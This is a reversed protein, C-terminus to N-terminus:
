RVLETPLVLYPSQEKDPFLAYVPPFANETYLGHATLLQVFLRQSVKLTGDLFDCQRIEWSKSNKRTAFVLVRGSEDDDDKRTKEATMFVLTNQM